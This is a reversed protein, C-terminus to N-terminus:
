SDGFIRLAKESLAYYIKVKNRQFSPSEILKGDLDFVIKKIFGSELLVVFGKHINSVTKQNAMCQRISNLEFYTRGSDDEFRDISEDSSRYFLNILTVIQICVSQRPLECFERLNEVNQSLSSNMM